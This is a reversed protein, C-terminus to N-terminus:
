TRTGAPSRAPPRRMRRPSNGVGLCFLEMVERAYNENPRGKVNSNSDLWVLMAPDRQDGARADFKGPTDASSSTRTAMLEPLRVKAVSTAFHNHWFLTMREQLPYPTLVMRHLWWGELDIGGEGQVGRRPSPSPQGPAVADLIQDFEALGAGGTLLKEVAAEPGAKVAAQIQPWSGGFAARRYLHGAWKTGWPDQQSPQWAAWEKAPDLKRLRDELDTM